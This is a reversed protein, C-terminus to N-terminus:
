PGPRLSVTTDLAQSDEDHILNPDNSVLKKIRNLCDQTPLIPVVRSANIGSKSFVVWTRNNFAFPHISGRYPAYYINVRLNDPDISGLRLQEAVQQVSEGSVGPHRKKSSFHGAHHTQSFFLYAPYPNKFEEQSDFSYKLKNILKYRLRALDECKKKADTEESAMINILLRCIDSLRASYIQEARHRTAKVISREKISDKENFSQKTLNLDEELFKLKNKIKTKSDVSHLLDCCDQLEFLADYLVNFM